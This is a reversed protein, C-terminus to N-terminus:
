QLSRVKQASLRRAVVWVIAQLQYVFDLGPVQQHQFALHYAQVAERYQKETMGANLLTLDNVIVRRSWVDHTVEVSEVDRINDWFSYVKRGRVQELDGLLVNYAKAVNSNLTRVGLHKLEHVPNRGVHRFGLVANRAYLLNKDWPTNPSLVAVVGAVQSLSFRAVEGLNSCWERVDSYWSLGGSIEEATAQELFKLVNEAQANM